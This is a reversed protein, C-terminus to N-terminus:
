QVRDMGVADDVLPREERVDTEVRARRSILRRFTNGAGYQRIDDILGMIGRPGVLVFFVFVIGIWAEWYKTLQSVNNQIEYYISAGLTPGLFTQMGGLMSMMVVNGSYEVSGADPNIAQQYYTWLWGAIAPFVASLVFANVRYKDVDYGLFRARQKNERIAHLVSGFPSSVIWYLVCLALFVVIATFWYFHYTESLMHSGLITPRPIGQLGDEGGTLDSWEYTVFFVVQAFALTIMSFYIGSSRPVILRALVWAWLVAAVLSFILALLLNDTPAHQVTLGFIQVNFGNAFLATVYAGITFFMAHGFSLEGVHGFLLNFGGAFLAFIVMTTGIGVFGSWQGAFPNAGAVFPLAVFLLATWLLPHLLVASLRSRPKM